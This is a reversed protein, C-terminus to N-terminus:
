PPPPPANRWRLYQGIRVCGLAVMVVALTLGLVKYSPPAPKFLVRFASVGGLAIFALGFLARSLYVTRNISRM